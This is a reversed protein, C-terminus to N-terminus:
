KKKFVAVARTTTTTRILKKLEAKQEISLEDGKLLKDIDEMSFHGYRSSVEPGVVKAARESDVKRRNTPSFKVTVDNEFTYEPIERMELFGEIWEAYAEKSTEAAKMAADLEAARLAIEEDDATALIHDPSATLVNRLTVCSDRRICYRCNANVTEETGDDAFIRRAVDKLYEFTHKHDERTFKVSTPNDYRLQDLTVWIAPPNQDKFKIAAALAYIRVQLLRKATSADLAQFWSKYDTVEITGDEWADCRDWIFTVQVERGDVKMMFHEKVETSLITYPPNEATRQYFKKLMKVGAEHQEAPLGLASAAAEFRAILKAEGNEGPQIPLMDDVTWRLIADHVATGLDGAAGGSERARDIYMAKYGAPCDEFAKIATASLTKPEM